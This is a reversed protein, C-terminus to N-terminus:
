ERRRGSHIPRHLTSGPSCDGTERGDDSGKGPQVHSVSPELCTTCRAENPEGAACDGPNWETQETSFCGGTRGQSHADHRREGRCAGRDRDCNQVWSQGTHCIPRSHGDEFGLASRTVRATAVYERRQFGQLQVCQLFVAICLYFRQGVQQAIAFTLHGLVLAGYRRHAAQCVIFDFSHSREHEVRCFCARPLRVQAACDQSGRSCPRTALM